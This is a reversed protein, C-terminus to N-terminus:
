DKYGPLEKNEIFNSRRHMPLEEIGCDTLVCSRRPSAARLVGPSHLVLVAGPVAGACACASNVDLWDKCCKWTDVENNWVYWNKWLRLLIILMVM